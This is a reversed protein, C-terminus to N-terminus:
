GENDFIEQQTSPQDYVSSFQFSYDENQNKPNPVKVISPHASTDNDNVASVIIDKDLESKQQPRIRAVVRIGMKGTLRDRRRHSKLAETALIGRSKSGLFQCTTNITLVLTLTAIAVTLFCYRNDSHYQVVFVLNCNIDIYYQHEGWKTM